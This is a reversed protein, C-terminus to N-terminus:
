DLDLKKDDPEDYVDVTYYGQEDIWVDVPPTLTGVTDTEKIKNM